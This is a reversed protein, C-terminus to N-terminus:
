SWGRGLANSMQVSPRRPRTQRVIAFTWVMLSDFFVAIILYIITTPENWRAIMLNIVQSTDGLSEAARLDLSKPVDDPIEASRDLADYQDRYQTNFQQLSPLTKALLGTPGLTHADAALKQLQVRNNDAQNAVNVVSPINWDANDILGSIKSSYDEIIEGNHSCDVGKSSLQTFGPLEAQLRAILNRAVPGQGCNLPNRIESDLAQELGRIGKIRETVGKKGLESGAADRLTSFRIESNEITDNFIRPGDFNFLLMSYVGAASIILLAIFHPTHKRFGGEEGGVAKALMVAVSAMVMAIVTAAVISKTHLLLYYGTAVMFWFVIVLLLAAIQWTRHRSIQETRATM